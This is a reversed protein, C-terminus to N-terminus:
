VILEGLAKPEPSSFIVYPLALFDAKELCTVVRSCSVSLCLLAM